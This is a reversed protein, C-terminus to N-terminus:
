GLANEIATRLAQLNFPKELRAAPKPLPGCEKDFIRFDTMGTIIIVPIHECAKNLRMERYLQLGTQNPMKIDLLVLDPKEALMTQLGKRGDTASCTEYGQDELWAALYAITDPEDDVILIKM